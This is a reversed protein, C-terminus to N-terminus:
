DGIRNWFEYSIDHEKLFVELNGANKNSFSEKLAHLLSGETRLANLLASIESAQITLTWEYERYGLIEEVKPGLDHGEILLSGSKTLSASLYRIDLDDRENRLVVSDSINDM